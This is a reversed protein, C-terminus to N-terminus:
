DDRPKKDMKKKLEIWESLQKLNKKKKWEQKGLTGSNYPNYGSKLADPNAKVPANPSAPDDAVELGPESLARVRQMKGVDDDALLDHDDEAWQWTMNGRDDEGVRGAGDRGKDTPQKGLPKARPKEAM